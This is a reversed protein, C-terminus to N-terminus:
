ETVECTYMVLMCVYVARSKVGSEIPSFMEGDKLALINKLTSRSVDPFKSPNGTMMITANKRPKYGNKAAKVLWQKLTTKESKGVLIVQDTSLGKLRIKYIGNAIDLVVPGKSAKVDNESITKPSAAHANISTISFVILLLINRITLM